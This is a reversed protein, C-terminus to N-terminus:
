GSGATRPCPRIQFRCEAAGSIASEVLDVEVPRGLTAEWMARVFAKSCHCYTPSLTEGEPLEKVLACFCRMPRSFAQPAYVQYLAEGERELRTGAAPKKLEAALFAEEDAAKERRARARDIPLRNRRACNVGCSEMIRVATETPLLADLREMAGRVWRAVEAGGTKATIADAGAMVQDRIEKGALAEVQGGLEEIMGVLAKSM